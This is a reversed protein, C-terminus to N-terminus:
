QSRLALIPDVHAAKRAPIWCAAAAAVLLLITASVFTGPDAPKVQFLQSELLRGLAFASLLGALVGGALFPLVQRLPLLAVQHNLAGLAMRVGFEKTRQSVSYSVVGYIGVLCIAMALFAFTGYLMTNLRDKSVSEGVLEEMSRISLIPARSDYGRVIARVHSVLFGLNDSQSRLIIHMDGKWRARGAPFYITPFAPQQPANDRADKVVGVIPGSIEM